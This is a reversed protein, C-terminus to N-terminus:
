GLKEEIGALLAEKLTNSKVSNTFPTLFGTVILKEAEEKPLGRSMLYYVQEENVKGITAAHGATIDGEDILLFPNATAQATESLNLIRTEQQNDGSKMGKHIKGIGNFALHADDKVVGYNIINGNSHPALNEIRVTMDQKQNKNSIAITKVEAESGKGVLHTTDEFDLNGDNLIFNSSNLSADVHVEALRKYHVIAGNLNSIVSSELKANSLVNVKSSISTTLDTDCEFIEVLNASGSQEVIIETGVELSLKPIYSIYIPESIVQNKEIKIAINTHSGEVSIGPQLNKTKIIGDEIIVFNESGEPILFKEKSM